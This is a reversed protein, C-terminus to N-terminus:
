AAKLLRRRPKESELVETWESRSLDLLSGGAAEFEVARDYSSAKHAQATVANVMGWASLDGGEILSRLISGAEADTAGIRQSLVEVASVPNGSVEIQTLGEMKEVRERFRKGDFAARIMDRLKLMVAKDDAAVTDDAWLASNDEINKGVHYTRFAKGSIMGNLCALFYDMDAVSAAGCGVESNSIIVGGQVIDGVRRSGNIKAELSPSVAQIYLRRETIECSVVKV